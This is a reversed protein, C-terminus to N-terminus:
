ESALPKVEVATLVIRPVKLVTDAADEDCRAAVTTLADGAPTTVVAMLSVQESGFGTTGAGVNTAFDIPTTNSQVLACFDSHGFEGNITFRTQVLWRGEPLQISALNPCDLIDDCAPVDRVIDTDVRVRPADLAARADPAIDTLRITDDLIESSRVAGLEIEPSGVADAEIEPGGVADTAIEPGGVANAAIEPGGVANAEIEPGRVANAEIEPSGVANAAIETSGVANSDIEESGVGNARIEAARVADTAIERAGVADAQIQASGVSNNPLTIAATATGGLALIVALSAAVNAYTLRARIRALATTHKRLM